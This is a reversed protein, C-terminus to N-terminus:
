LLKQEPQSQELIRYWYGGAPNQEPVDSFKFDPFGFMVALYKEQPNMIGPVGLVYKGDSTKGILLHRYNYYGHM